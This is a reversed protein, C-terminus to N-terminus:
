AQQEAGVDKEAPALKVLSTLGMVELVQLISENPEILCLTGGKEDIMKFYGVLAALTPTYLYSDRTFHLAIKNRGQDLAQQILATLDGFDAGLGLDRRIRFVQYDNTVRSEIAGKALKGMFKKAM